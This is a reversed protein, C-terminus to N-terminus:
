EAMKRVREVVERPQNIVERMVAELEEGRLSDLDLRRKQAEAIVEPEKFAKLYAERLVRVRDAPIGPTALMPRGLTRGLLLVRAIARSIEPTKKKGMLEHLTPTDPLRPDRKVGTQIIHRDFGERHWTLFPERSFHTTIGTGRCHIEGKGIAMDIESAGPYGRVIKFKLGVTEELVDGLITTSDATGTAGCKPPEAATAIDEVSKWPADARMYLMLDSQDVSGIWVFKRVDHNVEKRGLLQDLYVGSSVMGLTLGDPKAVGYVYNSAILSGAGPMNQVIIDPNGPIHRPMYRSLIRAYQDYLGGSTFGVIIRITKGQYFPATQGHARGGGIPQYLFGVYGALLIALFKIGGLSFRAAM